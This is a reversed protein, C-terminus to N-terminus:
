SLAGEHLLYEGNKSELRFIATLCTPIGGRLVTFGFTGQGVALSVQQVSSVFFGGFRLFLAPTRKTTPIGFGTVPIGAVCSDYGVKEAFDFKKNRSKNM